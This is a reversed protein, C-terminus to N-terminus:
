HTHHEPEHLTVSRLFQLREDPTARRWWFLLRELPEPLPAERSEPKAKTPM